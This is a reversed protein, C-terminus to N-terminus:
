GCGALRRRGGRVGLIEAAATVLASLWRTRAPADNRGENYLRVLAAHLEVTWQVQQAQARVQAQQAQGGGMGMGMVWQLVSIYTYQPEELVVEEFLEQKSPVVINHRVLCDAAAWNGDRLM